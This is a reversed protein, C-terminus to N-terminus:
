WPGPIYRDEPENFYDGMHQPLWIIKVLPESQTRKLRKKAGKQLLKFKQEAKMRRQQLSKPDTLKGANYFCALYYELQDGGEGARSDAASHIYGWYRAVDSDDLNQCYLVKNTGQQPAGAKKLYEMKLLEKAARFADTPTYAKFKPV